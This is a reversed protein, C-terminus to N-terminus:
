AGQRAEPPAPASAPPPASQSMPGSDRRKLGQSLRDTRLASELSGLVAETDRVILVGEDEFPFLQGAASLRKKAAALTQAMQGPPVHILRAPTPTDLIQHYRWIREHVEPVDDVVAEAARGDFTVRGLGRTLLPAYAQTLTLPAAHNVPYRREEVVVTRGQFPMSFRLTNKAPVRAAIASTSIRDWATTSLLAVEPRLALTATTLRSSPSATPPAASAGLLSAAWLVAFAPNM